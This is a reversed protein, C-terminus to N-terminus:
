PLRKLSMDPAKPQGNTFLSNHKQPRIQKQVDFKTKTEMSKTKKKHPGNEAKQQQSTKKNASTPTATM